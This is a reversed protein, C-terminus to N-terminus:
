QRLQPPAIDSVSGLHSTVRGVVDGWSNGQLVRQHAAHGMAAARAPDGLLASLAAALPEPEFRPVLMGTVGDDIIEPMACCTTGICPLGYGMAEFFVFGWPEFLSPLVFVTASEYHEALAPRDLRGLWTAGAPLERRPQRKPGVIFLEADPVERRVQPWAELLVNGGKRPFDFGVFLARRAGYDKGELSSMSQNTGAGVAAVQAPDCRYDEVVSRRAFESCTYVARANRCVDAEFGMWWSAAQGSLRAAEPYLRQTLAMTNDTYIVYPVGARDFGPACLTQLQFILEYRGEYESLGRQVLETRKRVLASNFGARALWDTKRPHFHRALNVYEDRRELEPRVVGVLEFRDALAGFLQSWKGSPVREAYDSVDPLAIGLVRPGATSPMAAVM